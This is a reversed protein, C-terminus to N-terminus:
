FLGQEKKLKMQRWRPLLLFQSRDMKFAAAFSSDDLQDEIYTPDVGYERYGRIRVIEKMKHLDYKKDFKQGNPAAPVKIENGGPINTPARNRPRHRDRQQVPAAGFGQPQQQEQAALKAARQAVADVLSTPKGKPIKRGSAGPSKIGKIAPSKPTAASASPPGPISGGTCSDLTIDYVLHCNPPVLPPSGVEGYALDPRVVVRVSQGVNMFKVAYELGRITQGAGVIFKIPGVYGDRSKLDSAAVEIICEAQCDWVYASYSLSVDDGNNPAGSSKKLVKGNSIMTFGDTLIEDFAHLSPLGWHDEKKKQRRSGGTTSKKKSIEHKSKKKEEAGLGMVINRAQSETLAVIYNSPFLGRQGDATEGEWWGQSSTNKSRIAIIEGKRLGLEVADSPNWDFEVKALPYVNQIATHYSNRSPINSERPNNLEAKVAENVRYSTRPNVWRILLYHAAENNVKTLKFLYHELVLARAKSSEENMYIGDAWMPPLPSDYNPIVGRVEEDLARFEALKKKSHIKKKGLTVTVKFDVTGKENDVQVRTIGRNNQQAAQEAMVKTRQDRLQKQEEKSIIEVYNYPFEGREGNEKQGVWWGSEDKQLIKIIEMARFGLDGEEQAKFPHVARAYEHTAAM